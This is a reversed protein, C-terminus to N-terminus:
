AAATVAVANAAFDDLAGGGIRRKRRLGIPILLKRVLGFVAGIRLGVFGMIVFGMIVFSMRVVRMFMVVMIVFMIMVVIMMFMIMIIAAVIVGPTVRRYRFRLGLRRNRSRDFCRNGGGDVLRGGGFEVVIRAMVRLRMILLRLFVGRISVVYGRGFRRALFTGNRGLAFKDDRDAILLGFLVVFALVGLFFDDFGDAAVVHQFFHRLAGEARAAL